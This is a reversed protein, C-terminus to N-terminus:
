ALPAAGQGEIPAVPAEADAPPTLEIVAGAGEGTGPEEIREVEISCNTVFAALAGVAALWPALLIGVAGVTVPFEVVTREGQKIVIRRVNGEHVLEKVKDLLQGGDVKFTQWQSRPQPEMMEEEVM